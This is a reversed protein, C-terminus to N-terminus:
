AYIGRFLMWKMFLLTTTVKAWIKYIIDDSELFIVRSIRRQAKEFMELNTVMLTKEIGGYIMLGNTVSPKVM